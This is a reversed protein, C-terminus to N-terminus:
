DRRQWPPRGDSDNRRGDNRQWSSRDGDRNRYGNWNPRDRWGSGRRSEWYRRHNDGWTRRAGARDYIYYGSGPYYWGDYWGYYPTGYYGNGYYGSGYGYGVGGYGYGDNCAALGLAATAILVLNRIRM